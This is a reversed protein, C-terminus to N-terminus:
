GAGSKFPSMLFGHVWAKWWVVSKKADRLYM